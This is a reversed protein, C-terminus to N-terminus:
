FPVDSPEAEAGVVKRWDVTGVEGDQYYSGDRRYTGNVWCARSIFDHIERQLLLLNDPCNHTKRHDVHDVTFGVPLGDPALDYFCSERCLTAMVTRHVFKARNPGATHRLYGNGTLTVGATGAWKAANLRQMKLRSMEREEASQPGRTGSQRKRKLKFRM